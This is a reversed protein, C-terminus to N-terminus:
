RQPLLSGTGSPRGLLQRFPRSCSYTAGYRCPKDLNTRNYRCPKVLNARHSQAQVVVM